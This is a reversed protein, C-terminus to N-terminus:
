VGRLDNYQGIHMYDSGVVDGNSADYYTVANGTGTNLIYLGTYSSNSSVLRATAVVSNEVHLPSTPNTTGIGVYGSSLVTLNSTDMNAGFGLSLKSDQTAIYATDSTDILELGCLADSSQVRLPYNDAHYIHLSKTPGTTGIGVYGARTIGMLNVLGAGQNARILIKEGSSAGDTDFDFRLGGAAKIAIDGSTGVSGGTQLTYNGGSSITTTAYVTSSYSLRLQETTSSVDLRASPYTTGVGVNGSGSITM